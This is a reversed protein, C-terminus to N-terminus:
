DTLFLYFYTSFCDESIFTAEEEVIRDDDIMIMKMLWRFLWLRQKLNEIYLTELRLNSGIPREEDYYLKM